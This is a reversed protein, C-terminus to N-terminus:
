KATVKVQKYVALQSLHGLMQTIDQACLAEATEAEYFPALLLIPETAGYRRLALAEDASTTAFYTIGNRKLIEYETQLGLGYGNEKVVGIILANTKEKLVRINNKIAALDIKLVSEKPFIEESLATMDMMESGWHEAFYKGCNKQPM